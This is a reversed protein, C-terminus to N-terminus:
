SKPFADGLLLHGVEYDRTSIVQEAGEEAVRKAAERAFDASADRADETAWLTVVM